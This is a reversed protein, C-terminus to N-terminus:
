RNNHARLCVLLRTGLGWGYVPFPRTVNSAKGPQASEAIKVHVLVNEYPVTM